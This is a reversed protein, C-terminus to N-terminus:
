LTNSKNMMKYFIQMMINAIIIMIVSLAAGAGLRNQFFAIHWIKYSLVETANGPGGQTMMYVVDFMKFADLTRFMLIVAIIPKLQPLVILRLIQFASAGDVIAAEFPEMPLSELGALFIIMAFPTWQWIDVIIISVVAMRPTGLWNVSELGLSNLFYNVLGLDYGLNVRWILGIVIPSLVTSMLFIVRLWKIRTNLLIYALIFGLVLEVAVVSFTFLLTVRLSYYFDSSTLLNIYQSLGVFVRPLTPIISWRHLSVVLLYVIPYISLLFLAIFAPSVMLYGFKKRAGMPNAANNRLFTKLM